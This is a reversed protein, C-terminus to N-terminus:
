VAVSGYRFRGSVGHVSDINGTRQEARNLRLVRSECIYTRAIRKRVNTHESKGLTAIM